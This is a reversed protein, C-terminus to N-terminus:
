SARYSKTTGVACRGSRGLVAVKISVLMLALKVRFNSRKTAVVCRFGPLDQRKLLPSQRGAMTSRSKKQSGMTWM